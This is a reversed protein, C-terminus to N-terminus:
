LVALPGVYHPLQTKYHLFLIYFSRLVQWKSSNLSNYLSLSYLTETSVLGHDPLGLFIEGVEALLITWFVFFIPFLLPTTTELLVILLCLHEALDLQWFSATVAVRGCFAQKWYALYCRSLGPANSTILNFHLKITAVMFAIKLFFEVLVITFLVDHGLPLFCASLSLTISQVVDQKSVKHGPKKHPSLPDAALMRTGYFCPM